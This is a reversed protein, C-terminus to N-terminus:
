RMLLMRKTTNFVQGKSEVTLRYLYMGNSLPDGNMDMGNWQIQYEGKSQEEDVFTAILQGTINYVSLNVIADEALEYSIYTYDSFPNPYNQNLISNNVGQRKALIIITTDTHNTDPPSITDILDDRGPSGGIYYSARWYSPLTQDNKPNLETPVLSYGNGDPASPWGTGDNFRFACLTDDLPSTLILWEGGNDLQGSYEDFPYFGYRSYFMEPNSALVIFEGADFEVNKPFEYSIGKVFKSGGLFLKSTGTNKLEVFEFESDNITDEDLPHYNVETIKVNYFSDALYFFRDNLASWEGNYFTRAKIHKSEDIDMPSSYLMATASPNGPGSSTSLRLRASIIFDSSTLNQNIGQIALVNDGDALEDMYDTISFTTLNDAEHGATSASNWVPSAPANAEAVKTGNLYAVFGDDYRVGLEMSNYNSVETIDFTFSIRIYCSTNPNTGGTYMDNSVDLTILSEYGSNKEYGVGGPAGSCLTWGSDDFGISSYWTTGLDSKPVTVRKDADEEFLVLEEEQSGGGWDVPDSGDATFYITGQPATMSVDDGIDVNYGVPATGNVLFVPADVNPYLGASRLQNLFIGTRAPFYTNLLYSQAQLWYTEKTYLDFPGATQYQHVDRRYDGWRAAEGNIAEEVEVKRMNWLAEAGEPTLTGNNFCHVQVRDTFSRKFDENARLKQFLDSPCNSNNEGLMNANENELIHEMDWCIFQFGQNINNRNKIAAWNHHDWDTNGGYFNILMYDIINEIDVYKHYAFNRTGDPNNGQIKQYAENSTLGADAQDMMANWADLNGDVPETYDKIVDFDEEEGDFYSAAFRRDMRETPAYLGWYMGNVYLHVFKSHAGVHGMDLQADKGWADRTYQARNRQSSEHHYWANCFGARLVITNFSTTADEGFMPFNLTKPGYEDRFIVRFSHKPSKEPRRGHGGHLRLGCNVQFSVTDNPAFYEMSVPREWGDGLGSTTNTLPPGTYIYIGGTNPDVQKSFLNNKDTVLSITPIDLLAQKLTNAFTPDSVLEPDMEYDAIATDSLATYPGWKEPYGAPHNSQHIVSDLFLYTQTVVKSPSQGSYTNVARIISTNNINIPSSFLTGNVQSPVSGDTTYYIQTGAVASSLTLNFPSDYFGHNYNFDPAPVKASGSSNDAGPTPGTFYFWNGNLLGYSVDKKQSPFAPYFETSVQYAPNFLALYDGDGDMRFNTHLEQGAVRKNKGSAFVVMYSHANLTVAPFIWKNKIGIEDTLSWGLLNVPDDSSNYIEIWDSYATDEDLLFTENVAMFENIQIALQGSLKLSAMVILVFTFTIVRSILRRNVM